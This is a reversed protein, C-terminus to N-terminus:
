PAAATFPNIVTVGDYQQGHNLDESFVTRCGMRKAAAIEMPLSGDDLIVYDAGTDIWLKVLDRADQASAPLRSPTTRAELGTDTADLEANLRSVSTFTRPARLKGHFVADRYPVATEGSTGVDITSTIGYNLLPEALYWEYSVQADFLGPLVFKGTADIVQANAPYRLQGERGVSVIRNGQIVVASNQLPAGGNGDILTGGEIVLTAAPQQAGVLPSRCVGILLVVSLGILWRDRSPKM